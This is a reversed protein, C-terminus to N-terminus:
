VIKEKENENINKIDDDNEMETRKNGASEKKKSSKNKELNTQILQKIFEDIEKNYGSFGSKNLAEIVDHVM